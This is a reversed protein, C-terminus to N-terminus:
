SHSLELARQAMLVDCFKNTDKRDGFSQIDEAIESLYIAHEKVQVPSDHM